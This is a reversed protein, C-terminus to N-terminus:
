RVASKPAHVEHDFCLEKHECSVLVTLSAVILSIYEAASRKM